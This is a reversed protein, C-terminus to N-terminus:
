APHHGRDDFGALARTLANNKTLMFDKKPASAESLAAAYFRALIQYHCSKTIDWAFV